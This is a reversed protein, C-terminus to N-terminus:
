SSTSTSSPPRSMEAAWVVSVWIFLLFHITPHIRPREQFWFDILAEWRFEESVSSKKGITVHIYQFFGCLFKSTPQLNISERTEWFNQFGNCKLYLSIWCVQLINKHKICLAQLRFLSLLRLLMDLNDYLVHLSCLKVAMLQVNSFYKPFLIYTLLLVQKLWGIVWNVGKWTKEMKKFKDKWEQFKWM